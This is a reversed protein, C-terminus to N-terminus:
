RKGRRNFFARIEEPESPQPREQVEYPRPISVAPPTPTGRKTNAQFFWIGNRDVVEILGALLEHTTTWGWSEPNAARM